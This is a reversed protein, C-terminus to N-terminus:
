APRQHHKTEHQAEGRQVKDLADAQLRLAVVVHFRQQLLGEARDVCAHQRQELRDSTAFVPAEIQVQEPGIIEVQVPADEQTEDDEEHNGDEVYDRAHEEVPDHAVHPRSNIFAKARPLFGVLLISRLKPLVEGFHSLASTSHVALLKHQGQGLLLEQLAIQENPAKANVIGIEEEVHNRRAGIPRVHDVEIRQDLCAQTELTARVRQCQM